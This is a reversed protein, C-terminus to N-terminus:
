CIWRWNSSLVAITLANWRMSMSVEFLQDHVRKGCGEFNGGGAEARLGFDFGYGLAAGAVWGIDNEVEVTVNYGGGVDATGDAEDLFNVGGFAGIYLGEAHAPAASWLAAAAATALLKTQM